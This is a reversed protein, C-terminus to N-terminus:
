FKSIVDIQKAEQRQFTTYMKIGTARDRIKRIGNRTMNRIEQSTSHSM